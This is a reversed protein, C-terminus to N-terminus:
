KEKRKVPQVKNFSVFNGKETLSIFTKDNVFSVQANIERNNILDYIIPVIRKNDDNYVASLTDLPMITVNALISNINSKVMKGLLINSFKIGLKPDFIESLKKINGEQFLNLVSNISEIFAENHADTMCKCKMIKSWNKQEMKQIISYAIIIANFDSLFEAYEIADNRKTFIEAMYTSIIVEQASFNNVFIKLNLNHIRNLSINKCFKRKVLLDKCFKQFNENIIESNYKSALKTLVQALKKELSKNPENYTAKLSQIFTTIIEESSDKALKEYIDIVIMRTNQDSSDALELLSTLIKKQVSKENKFLLVLTTILEIKEDQNTAQLIKSLISEVKEKIQAKSTKKTKKNRSSKPTAKEEKRIDSGNEEKPPKEPVKTKIESKEKNVPKDEVKKESLSPIEIKILDQTAIPKIEFSKKLLIIEGIKSILNVPITEEVIFDSELETLISIKMRVKNKEDEFLSVCKAIIHGDPDVISKGVLNEAKLEDDKPNKSRIM